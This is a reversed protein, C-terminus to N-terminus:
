ITLIALLSINKLPVKSLSTKDSVAYPMSAGASWKSYIHLNGHLATAPYDM